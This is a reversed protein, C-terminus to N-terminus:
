RGRPCVAASARRLSALKKAADRRNDEDRMGKAFSAAKRAEDRLLGCLDKDREQFKARSRRIDELYELAHRNAVAFGGTLSADPSFRSSTMSSTSAYRTAM